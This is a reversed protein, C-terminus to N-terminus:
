WRWSAGGGGFGGGGFGGFGGGGLGGGFGGGLGGRRYGGGFGGRGFPGGGGLGGGVGLLTLLLAGAGFFIALVLSGLLFWSAAGVLAGGLIGGPVRGFIARLVFVSLFALVLLTQVPAARPRGTERSKHQPLPLPEGAIAATAVDLAARIGGAFDGARFRPTAIDDLIRNALADPLAGELGYGVEFRMARDDKAVLFLLGDDVGGRGIGWAEAVRLAYQEVAEPRTTPVILVAAQAGKESAVRALFAELDARQAGSLTGTQDVVRGAPPIPALDQAEAAAVLLAILVV